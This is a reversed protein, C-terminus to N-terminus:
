PCVFDPKHFWMRIKALVQTLCQVLQVLQVICITSYKYKILVTRIEHAEM